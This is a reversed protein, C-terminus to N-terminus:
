EFVCVSEGEGEREGECARDRGGRGVGRERESARRRECVYGDM